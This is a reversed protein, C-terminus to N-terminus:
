CSLRRGLKLRFAKDVRDVWAKLGIREVLPHVYVDLFINELREHDVEEQM